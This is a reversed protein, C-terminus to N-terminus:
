RTRLAAIGADRVSDQFNMTKLMTASNVSANITTLNGINQGNLSNQIFTGPPLGQAGGFSAQNNQVLMTAGLAARAQAAEAASVNRVDDLRVSTQAVLAGNISAVRDIGLSLQLGSPATFGGRVDALVSPAVPRWAAAPAPQLPVPPVQAATAGAGLAAALAAAGRWNMPLTTM